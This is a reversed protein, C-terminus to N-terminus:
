FINKVPIFNLLKMFTRAFKFNTFMKVFKVNRFVELTELVPICNNSMADFEKFLSFIFYFQNHQM